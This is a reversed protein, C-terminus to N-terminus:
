RRRRRRRRWVGKKKKKKKKKKKNNNLVRAVVVRAFSHHSVSELSLFFSLHSTNQTKNKIKKL